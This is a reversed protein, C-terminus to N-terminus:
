EVSQLGRYWAWSGKGSRKVHYLAVDASKMLTHLDGGDQPYLSVGISLGVTALNDELQLPKAISGIIRECIEGAQGPQDLNLLLIAFEDGGLRCVIDGARVSQQLRRAVAILAKDGVDHGFQDNIKKFGDIDAILIAAAAHSTSQHSADVAAVFHRWADQLMRRNPLGTLPDELAVRRLAEEAIKRSSIDEFTAIAMGIDRLVIGQRQITLVRGDACKISVQLPEIEGIGTSNGSHWLENWCLRARQRDDEYLYAGDIWADVTSFDTDSYGFITRFARNVFRIERGPLSALSVPIPLADLIIHLDRYSFATNNAARELLERM